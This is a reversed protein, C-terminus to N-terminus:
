GLCKQWRLIEQALHWMDGSCSSHDGGAEMQVIQYGHDSSISVAEQVSWAVGM